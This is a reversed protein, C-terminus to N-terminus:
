NSHQSINLLIGTAALSALLSSGGYSIYPLPLGKTPLLGTAVGMNLLAQLTLTLTLGLGLCTGFADPAKISARLGRWCIVGFVAAVGVTGLFGLEEGIVSFIFDSHPFPLYFAKQQGKGLGVGLLGGSGLSILSQSIQFGSGLPDASPDLFALFRERRYSSSAILLALGAAGAGAMGALFRLRVGGLYLFVLTVIGLLFSTGTDPEILVLGALLGCVALVPVFGKPEGALEDGKRDLTYALFLVLALKAVESAQLNVPGLPIWRRAGNIPPFAFVTLLLVLAVFVGAAAIWPKNWFRYNVRMLLYMLAFGAIAHFGQKLLTRHAGNPSALDGFASASGVMVLGFVTLGVASAFLIRDFALKRGSV